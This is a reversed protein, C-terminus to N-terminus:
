YVVTLMGQSVMQDFKALGDYPHNQDPHYLARELDGVVIYQVNYVRLMQRAVDIQPTYYLSAVNAVRGWILEGMPDISRQQSQHFRWGLLTPFGTNMVIRSGLLYESMQAELVVPTGKINDEMWTILNYDDILPIKKDGDYYIANKMYDIGNLTHPADPAMRVAIKGQTAMIPFLGAISFLLSAFALWPSRLTPRWRESARLLWALGAGGVVSFLLWVQEYFKFITNQRGIDGQVVVVEVGFTLGVGLIILALVARMERSQDPLFFLIAAWAMLPLCIIAVPYPPNLFSVSASITTLALTVLATLAIVGLIVMVVLRNKVMDRVYTRRLIRATQWVLLSTILFLFVGHIDLYAWIPTKNGTFAQVSNFSTAFFTRFPLGAIQQAAVFGAFQGLWTILWRRTFLPGTPDRRLYAAFTLGGLGLIMYTYWDWTNTAYTLGVVLGGFLTALIAVWTRRKIVGAGLLEALLWALALLQLSMDIMHAHLDAYVFTFYPMEVIEESGGPLEGIIRTPAWFWRDPSIPLFGQTIVQNLGKGLSNMYRTLDDAQLQAVIAPSPNQAEQHLQADEDPTPNRNNQNIFDALLANYPDIAAGTYGGANAIGTLLVRPTDLNGLVVCLALAAVGAIYPSGAPARLAWRRRAVFSAQPDSDGDDRPYLRRSAVVNYAVSFAGIGTFAYLMPLVLNYAISPMIGLLKVPTGALVYGFYYYNMYGGSFWPDYPPFITSRLVANFYSFDMPKEGGLSQAWLDPNGLRVLLFGIFLAITVAEVFLLHRWHARIYAFFEARHRRVVLASVVALLAMAGAIGPASWTLFRLTGGVWVLWSVILVGALKAVPYGRDPLGPLIVYLLPWAIAGFLFLILYWVVVAAIPSTNLISNRFFLDAWTGGSQQIAQQDPTLMLGTPAANGTLTPWQIVNPVAQGEYSGAQVVGTTNINVSDMATTLLGPSYNANKKLIFVPPHDYVSFAEESQWWEKLLSDVFASGTTQTPLILDPITIPGIQIASTFTQIVDYGLQGSFLQKYLYTTMPFRAPDRPLTDYFRNSSITIYDANDMGTQIAQRKQATDEAVMYLEYGKYYQQGFGDVSQCNNAGSLGSSIDPTLPLSTPALCVKYPLPDDWAGEVAIATGTLQVSDNESYLAVAIQQKDALTVPTDLPIHYGDGLPSTETKSFDATVQGQALLKNTGSDLVRVHLTDTTGPTNVLVHPLDLSQFTGTVYAQQQLTLPSNPDPNVTGGYPFNFLRAVGDTGTVQASVSAPFNRFIWQSAYDRTLMRTHIQNFGNGWLVSFGTVFILAASAGIVALRRIMAPHAAAWQRARRLQEIMIWAALLVLIPYLPMFYRMSAVWGRGFVGFYVLVWVVLLAHRTWLKRARIMQIAAWIWSAWAMLGLPLGLGWEVINRWAFLYPTRAIWQYNPPGDYQGSNEYIAEKVQNIFDPYPAIGLVGPGTFAHPNAFRFTVFSAAGAVILGIVVRGILRQRESWPLRLDLTPLGHILLALGIVGFLPLLNIRSAIAVGFAIGFGLCDYWKAKDLARVAFYFAIVTPLNSFADMTWFHSLQIPLVAVAYLLAGLLGIWRGYSARYLRRGILFVFLISLTDATASVTRGIFHIAGYQTWVPNNTLSAYAQAAYHVVFLPFEGYVWLGHGINPPYLNSCEADFYGGIGNTAPYRQMCELVQAARTNDNALPVNGVESVVGTLFREDPHLYTLDDWNQGAFRLYGGLLLIATLLLGTIWDDRTIRLTLRPRRPLMPSIDAAPIESSFPLNAAPTLDDPNIPNTPTPQENLM